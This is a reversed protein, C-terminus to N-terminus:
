ATAFVIRDCRVYGRTTEAGLVVDGAARIGTVECDEIIEVGLAAAARAYAWAVADHRVTGGRPQLLAGIVPFRRPHRVNLEPYRRELAAVDLLEADIGALRMANGRRALGAMDADSLGLMVVGRPSYMVNFNLDKSLTEWRRLADEYFYQNEPLLYNSRVVTTNRGTNGYGVLHKDLVAVRKIGHDRVLHFATALGHGGAGVVVVDYGDRLARGGWLPTWYSPGAVRAKLLAWASYRPARRM